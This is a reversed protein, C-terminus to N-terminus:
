MLRFNLTPSVSAANASDSLYALVVGAATDTVHMSLQASTQPKVM